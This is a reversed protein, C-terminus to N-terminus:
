PKLLPVGYADFVPLGGGKAGPVAAMVPTWGCYMSLVAAAIKVNAQMEADIEVGSAVLAQYALYAKQANECVVQNTDNNTACGAIVVACAIALLLTKM